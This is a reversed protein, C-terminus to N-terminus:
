KGLAYALFSIMADQQSLDGAYFKRCIDELRPYAIASDQRTEVSSILEMIKDRHNHLFDTGRAERLRPHKRYHAWSKLKLALQRTKYPALVDTASLPFSELAPCKERIIRRHLGENLQKLFGLRWHESLIGPQIYPLINTVYTDISPYNVSQLTAFWYRLVFLHMWMPNLMEQSAPMACAAQKLHDWFGKHMIRSVDPVFFSSPNHFLYAGIDHYDLAKSSLASKLNAAMMRFRFIEGWYGSVYTDCTEAVLPYYGLNASHLPNFVAGRDKMFALVQDWSGITDSYKIHKFPLQFRTAIDRAVSYDYNDETGYNYIKVQVGANLYIALLPRIDMGGSLGMGITSGSKAPLLCYSELLKAADHAENTPQWLSYQMSLQHKKGEIKAQGGTGLKQVGDYYSDMLPAYGGQTPPYMSHWLAGFKYFDLSTKHQNKLLSLDSCFFLYEAKDVFYLSRKGLADNYCRLDCGDYHLIVFHGDLSSIREPNALLDLWSELNPYSYEDNLLLVANGLVCLWAQESLQQWYCTESRGGAKIEWLPSHFEHLLGQSHLAPCQQHAQQKYHFGYIWSM